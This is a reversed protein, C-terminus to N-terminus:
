RWGSTKEAKTPSSNPRGPPGWDNSNYAIVVHTVGPTTLVDDDFRSLGARGWSPTSLPADRQRDFAVDVSREGIMIAAHAILVPDDGFRNSLEARVQSGVISAPVRTRVTVDDFPPEEDEGGFDTVAQTWTPQWLRGDETNRETM